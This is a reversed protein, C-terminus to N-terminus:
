SIGGEHEGIDRVRKGLVKALVTHRPGELVGRLEPGVIGYRELLLVELELM